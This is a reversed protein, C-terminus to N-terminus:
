TKSEPDQEVEQGSGYVEVATPGTLKHLLGQEDECTTMGSPDQSDLQLVGNTRSVVKVM